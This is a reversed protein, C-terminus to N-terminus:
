RWKQELRLDAMVPRGGGRTDERMDYRRPRKLTMEAMVLAEISRPYRLSRTSSMGLTSHSTDLTAVAMSHGWSKTTSLAAAPPASYLHEEPVDAPPPVGSTSSERCPCCMSNLTVRSSTSPSLQSQWRHPGSCTPPCSFHNPCTVPGFCLLASRLCCRSSIAVARSASSM